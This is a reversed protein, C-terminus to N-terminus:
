YSKVYGLVKGEIASINVPGFDKSSTGRFWDDSVVFFSENPIKVPAMDEKFDKKTINSHDIKKAFYTNMDMGLRSKKAYFAELRKNDIYVQGDIFEVTEGPLGVVRGLYYDPMHFSISEGPYAFYVIDGRKFEKTREIVTKRSGDISHFHHEGRDMNDFAYEIVFTNGGREVLEVAPKTQEDRIVKEMTCGTQFTLILIWISLSLAM